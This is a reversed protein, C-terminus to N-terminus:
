PRLPFATIFREGDLVLRLHRAPPNGRRGGSEGGIYGVRRRLDITYVTRGEEVSKETHERRLAQLYAEDILAVLSPISTEDFVGHQGPRDPEDATHSELHKLRTGHVSGRGYILGANSRYTDRGVPELVEELTESSATSKPAPNGSPSKSTSPSRGVPPSPEAEVASDLQHAGPLDIGLRAELAPEALLYVVALVMVCALWKTGVRGRTTRLVSQLVRAIQQSNSAM